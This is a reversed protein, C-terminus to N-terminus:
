HYTFLVIETKKNNIVMGNKTLWDMTTQIENKVKIELEEITNAQHILYNDDAYQVIENHVKNLPSMLISFLMPGLISGQVCGAKVDFITSNKNDISVYATRETIWGYVLNVIQHPYGQYNMRRKLVEADLLDFAASMDLATVACLKNRDMCEAIKSQLTIAATITSHGEKFGHQSDGVFDEEGFLQEVKITQLIIREFIKALSSINSIPRYNTIDEKPGNKYTPVIKSTKWSTPVIVPL